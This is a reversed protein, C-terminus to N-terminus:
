VCGSQPAIEPADHSTEAIHKGLTITTSLSPTTTTPPRTADTSRLSTRMQTDTDTATPPVVTNRATLATGTTSSTSMVSTATTTATVTRIAGTTPTAHGPRARSRTRTVTPVSSSRTTIETTSGTTVANVQLLCADAGHKLLIYFASLFVCVSCAPQLLTFTFHAM